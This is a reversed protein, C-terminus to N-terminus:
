KIKRQLGNYLFQGKFEEPKRWDFLCPDTMEFYPNIELLKVEWATNGDFRKKYKLFVDFVVDDLECVSQFKPFFSQIVWEISDAQNIVELYTKNYQYQSIGVLKRDKMFCRFEFYEEIDIWERIFIHPNYLHKLAMCFDDFVRVSSLLLQIAEKGNFVPKIDVDKPSRSGLRVFAGKPFKKVEVDLRDELIKIVPTVKNNWVFDIIPEVVDRVSIEINSQGISLSCLERNWNEIYTPKAIDFYTLNDKM